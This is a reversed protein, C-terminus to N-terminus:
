VHYTKPEFRGKGKKYPAVVITKGSKKYTRTHGRVSWSETKREIERKEESEESPLYLKYTKSHVYVVRKNGKGGRAKKTKRARHEETQIYEARATKMYLMSAAWIGTMDTMIEREKDTVDKVKPPLTISFTVGNEVNYETKWDFALHENLYLTMYINTGEDDFYLLIKHHQHQQDPRVNLNTFDILGEKLPPYQISPALHNKWWALIRAVSENDHMIRDLKAFHAKAAETDQPKMDSTM